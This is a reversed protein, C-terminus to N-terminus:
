QTQDSSTATTTATEELTSEKNEKNYNMKVDVILSEKKILDITETILKGALIIDARVKNIEKRFDKIIKSPKDSNLLKESIEPLSNKTRDDAGALVKDIEKLKLDIKEKSGENLINLSVLVAEREVIRRVLNQIKNILAACINITDELQRRLEWRREEKKEDKKPTESVVKESTTASVNALSFLPTILILSISLLIKLKLNYTKM